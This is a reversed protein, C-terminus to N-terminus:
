ENFSLSRQFLPTVPPVAAQKAVYDALVTIAKARDADSTQAHITRELSTTRLECIPCILRRTIHDPYNKRKHVKLRGPCGPTECVRGKRRKHSPESSAGQTVM